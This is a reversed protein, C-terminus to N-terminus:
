QNDYFDMAVRNVRRRVEIDKKYQEYTVNLEQLQKKIVAESQISDLQEEESPVLVDKVAKVGQGVAKVKDNSDPPVGAKKWYEYYWKDYDAQAEASKVQAALLQEQQKRIGDEAALEKDKLEFAAKNNADAIDKASQSNSDSIDQTLDRDAQNEVAQWKRQLIGNMLAPNIQTGQGASSGSAVGSGSVNGGVASGAVLGSAAMPNIGYKEYQSLTNGVGNKWMEMTDERSQNYQRVSEDFQQQSFQQNWSDVGRQYQQEEAEAAGKFGGAAAGFPGGTLLGALSGAYAQNSTYPNGTNTGTIWSGIGTASLGPLGTMFDDLSFPM